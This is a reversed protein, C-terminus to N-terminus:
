DIRLKRDVSVIISIRPKGSPKKAEPMKEGAHAREESLIKRCAHPPRSLAEGIIESPAHGREIRKEDTNSLAVSAAQATSRHRQRHDGVANQNNGCQSSGSVLPRSSVASAQDSMQSGRLAQRSQQSWNPPAPQRCSRRLAAGSHTAGTRGVFIGKLFQHLGHVREGGAGGPHLLTEASAAIKSIRTRRSSMESSSKRRVEM